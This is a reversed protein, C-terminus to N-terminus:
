PRLIVKMLGPEKAYLRDFWGSGEELSVEASILPAVKIAGNDMLEICKPYEGASACSGFLTIERTVVSQLPFEVQPALNGVLVVSGGKRTAQIATEVTPTSGVVEFSVRAGQGNTAELITEIANSEKPNISQTAGLEEALKLRDQDLDVAIVRDCGAARVAQVLLLGIMGAGVVVAVDGSEFEVRGVAHVAVSVAEIMAAYEFPLSAPLKYLIRSPVAVYEAFAGHRRYEGCSVGLVMRQDCLNIKGERCYACEGCYVTSDFTVRDGLEFGKVEAGMQEIVGAAEHGMILPPIRRGSSGDYGHVDSGCIGCAKVRILVEDATLDPKPSEQIQLVKPETLVLSKVFFFSSDFSKSAM